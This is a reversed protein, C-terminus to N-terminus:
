GTGLAMRGLIILAASLLVSGLSTALYSLWKGNEWAVEPNLWRWVALIATLTFLSAAVFINYPAVSAATRSAANDIVGTVLAPLQVVVCAIFCGFMLKGAAASRRRHAAVALVFGLAALSATAYGLVSHLPM